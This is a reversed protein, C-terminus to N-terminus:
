LMEIQRAGMTYTLTYSENKTENVINIKEGNRIADRVGKISIIDDQDICDYDDPNSFVLPLIGFNCIKGTAPAQGKGICGGCGAQHIRAGAHIMKEMYGQAVLNELIQRSTPNIDLSVHPPVQRGEIILAVIAFDRFGPNASSGIYSQYIPRDVVEKVPEVNGPSSPLAILPELECLNIEDHLDYEADEDALIERWAKERGQKKIFM